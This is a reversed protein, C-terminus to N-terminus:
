FFAFYFFWFSWLILIRSLMLSTAAIKLNHNKAGLDRLMPSLLEMPTDPTQNQNIRSFSTSVPAPVQLFSDRKSSTTSMAEKEYPTCVRLNFKPNRNRFKQMSRREGIKTIKKKPQIIELMEKMEESLKNKGTSEYLNQARRFALIKNGEKSEGEKKRTNKRRSFSGKETSSIDFSLGMDMSNNQTSLRKKSGQGPFTSKSTTHSSNGSFYSNIKTHIYKKLNNQEM